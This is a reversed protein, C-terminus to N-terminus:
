GDFDEDWDPYQEVVGKQRIVKPKEYEATFEIKQVNITFMWDDGFDYHLSFKQGKMLHLSKIKANTSREGRQPDYQYSNWSYMRNDMCFEYLHGSEFDFADIITNCLRTLSEKGDIEIVRYASRGRGAPYVKLTYRENPKGAEIAQRKEFKIHEKQAVNKLNKIMKKLFALDVEVEKGDM